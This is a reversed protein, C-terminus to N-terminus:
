ALLQSAAGLKRKGPTFGTWVSYLPPSYPQSYAGASGSRATRERRWGHLTLGDPLRIEREVRSDAALVDVKWTKETNLRCVYLRDQKSPRWWFENKPPPLSEHLFCV